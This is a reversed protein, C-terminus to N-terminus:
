EEGEEAITTFGVDDRLSEFDKRTVVRGKDVHSTLSIGEEKEWDAVTKITDDM